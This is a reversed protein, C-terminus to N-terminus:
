PSMKKLGATPSRRYSLAIPPTEGRDRTSIIGRVANGRAATVIRDDMEGPMHIVAISQSRKKYFPFIIRQILCIWISLEQFEIM